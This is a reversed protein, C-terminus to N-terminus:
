RKALSVSYHCAERDVHGTLVGNSIQAALISGSGDGNTHSLDMQGSANITGRYHLVDGRWNAYQLYVTGNRILM